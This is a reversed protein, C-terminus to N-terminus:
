ASPCSMWSAGDNVLYMEARCKAVVVMAVTLRKM